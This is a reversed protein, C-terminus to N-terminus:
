TDMRKRIKRLLELNDHEIHKILNEIFLHREVASHKSVDVTRKAKGEVGNLNEDLLSSSSIILRESSPYRDAVVALQSITSSEQNDPPADSAMNNSALGAFKSIKTGRKIM